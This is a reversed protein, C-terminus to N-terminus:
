TISSAGCPKPRNRKENFNKPSCHLWNKERAMYVRGFKGRGLRKGLEFNDLSWKYSFFYLMKSVTNNDDHFLKSLIEMLMM